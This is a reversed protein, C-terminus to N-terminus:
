VKDIIELRALENDNELYCKIEELEAISTRMDKNETSLENIKSNLDNVQQVLLLVEGQLENDAAEKFLLANAESLQLKAQLQCVDEEYKLKLHNNLGTLSDIDDGYTGLRDQLKVLEKNSLILAERASTTEANSEELKIAWERTLSRTEAELEKIRNRLGMQIANTAIAENTVDEIETEAGRLRSHLADRETRVSYLEEAASEAQIKLAIAENSINALTGHLKAYYSIRDNASKLEDRCKELECLIVSCQTNAGVLSSELFENRTELIQIKGSINDEVIDIVPGNVKSQFLTKATGQLSSFLDEKEKDWQEQQALSQEVLQDILRRRAESESKVIKM